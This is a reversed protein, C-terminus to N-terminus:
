NMSSYKLIGVQLERNLLIACSVIFKALVEGSKAMNDIERQSKLSIM